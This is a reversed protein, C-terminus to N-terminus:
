RRRWVVCRCFKRTGGRACRDEGSASSASLRSAVADDPMDARRRGQALARRRRVRAGGRRRRRTESHTVPNGDLALAVRPRSRSCTRAWARSSTTRCLCSRSAARTSCSHSRSPCSRHIRSSSIRRRATLAVVLPAHGGDRWALPPPRLDAGGRRTVRSRWRESAPLARATAAAPSSRQRTSGSSTAERRLRPSPLRRQWPCAPWTSTTARRCRARRTEQRRRGAPPDSRAGHSRSSRVHLDRRSRLRDSRRRRRRMRSGRSDRLLGRAGTRARRPEARRALRVGGLACQCRHEPPARARPAAPRGDLPLRLGAHPSCAILARM